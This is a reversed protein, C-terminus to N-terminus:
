NNIKRFYDNKINQFKGSIGYELALDSIADFYGTIYSKKQFKLEEYGELASRVQDLFDCDYCNYHNNLSVKESCSECSLILM